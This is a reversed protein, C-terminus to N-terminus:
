PGDRDLGVGGRPQVRGLDRIERAGQGPRPVGSRRRLLSQAPPRRSAGVGSRQRRVLARRREPLRPLWEEGARLGGLRRYLARELDAAATAPLLDTGAPQEGRRGARTDGANKERRDGIPSAFALLAQGRQRAPPPRVGVALGVPSRSESVPGYRRFLRRRIM